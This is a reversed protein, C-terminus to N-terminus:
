KSFAVRKGLLYLECGLCIGFGANLVAAALAFALAVQTLGASGIVLGVVAVLVFGLGVGQAFRPPASDEFETPPALRPAVAKKFLLGYPQAHPGVLAGLGFAIAQIFILATALTTGGSVLAAALVVATVGAGFRPGRADIQKSM